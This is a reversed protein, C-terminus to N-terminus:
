PLEPAGLTRRILHETYLSAEADRSLGSRWHTLAAPSMVAPSRAQELLVHLQGILLRIMGRASLPLRAHQLARIESGLSTILRRSASSIQTYSPRTPWRALEAGFIRAAVNARESIRLFQDGSPTVATRRLVFADNRLPTPALHGGDVSLWMSYLSAYSPAASNVALRRFGVSSLAPFPFLSGTTDTADEQMWEAEDFSRDAEESTSFHASAHSTEDVVTLTWRRHALTLGATLADGPGVRFLFIPHFHRTTNSWFAWYRSEAVHNRSYGRLEETGVQVFPRRAGFGLAAIWTGALGPRSFNFIRPVTWSGEVSAVGGRWVYGAYAGVHAHGNGGRKGPVALSLGVVIALLMPVGVVVLRFRGLCRSTRSRMEELGMMSASVELQVRPQTLQAQRVRGAM